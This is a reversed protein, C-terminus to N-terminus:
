FTARPSKEDIQNLNQRFLLLLEFPVFITLISGIEFINQRFRDRRAWRTKSFHERSRNKQM